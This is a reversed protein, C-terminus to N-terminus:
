ECQQEGITSPALEREANALAQQAIQYRDPTGIDVCAGFHVFARICVRERVWQPFLEKELSVHIGAPILDLMHSSLVYIGANIYHAGFARQKEEFRTVSGSSDVLVSGCDNREDTPVVVVSIDAKTEDHKLILGTLDVDTYSDGNMVLVKDSEVLGAAHRLAGGTGLPSSEASYELKLGFAREGFHSRIMDQQYGVALIARQFSHRRLQRLPLELFPRGAVEAMGKPVNGVISRLRLGAGGCLVIANLM